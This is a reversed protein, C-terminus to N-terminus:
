IIQLNYNSSSNSFQHVELIYEGTELQRHIEDNTTGGLRAEQVVDGADVLGNNNLDRILRLDLDQSLGSLLIDVTRPSTINFRYMNSTNLDNISGARNIITAGLDGLNEEPAILNNPTSLSVQLNYTTDGAAFQNVQIFYTGAALARVNISDPTLASAASNAITDGDDLIGNGNVDRILHLDLDKRLGTLAINVDRSLGQAGSLSFKYIDSTDTDSISGTRTIIGPNLFSNIQGFDQEEAILNSVKSSSLNLTYQAFATVGSFQEEYVQVFYSGAALSRINISEPTSGPNTSSIIVDGSDVIGNANADRLLRLNHDGFVAPKPLRLDINVASTTSLDFQYIDSTNVGNIAGTQTIVSAGLVGLNGEPAILNSLSGTSLHLTYPVFPISSSGSQFAQIFYNGTELVLTNIPPTATGNFITAIIQDNSSDDSDVIGNNNLDRILRLNGQGQLAINVPTANGPTSAISFQYIDSTDRNDLTDSVTTVNAGLVGLNQEAVILNSPNFGSTQNTSLALNYPSSVAGFQRVQVIYDGAQLGQLNRVEPNTGPSSFAPIIESLDIFGNGDERSVQVDLDATLGTVAVNVNAPNNLHFRVQDATNTNSITGNFFQMPATPTLTGVNKDEAIVDNFSTNSLRLTYNTTATAVHNVEIFYDGAALTKLNIQEPSTGTHQSEVIASSSGSKFLRLNADASLGDLGVNLSSTAGLSFNIRDLPNANDVHSSLSQRDSLVGLNTISM